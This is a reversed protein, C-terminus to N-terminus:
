ASKAFAGLVLLAPNKLHESPDKPAEHPNKPAEHPNKPAEHPNKPAKKSFACLAFRMFNFCPKAYIFTFGHRKFDLMNTADGIKEIACGDMSKLEVFSFGAVFTGRDTGVMSFGIGDGVEWVPFLTDGGMECGEVGSDGDLITVFEAFTNNLRLLL